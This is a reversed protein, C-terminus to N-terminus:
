TTALHQALLPPADPAERDCQALRTNLRGVPQSWNSVIDPWAM